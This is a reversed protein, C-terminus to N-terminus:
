PVAARRQGPRGPHAGAGVTGARGGEADIPHNTSTM